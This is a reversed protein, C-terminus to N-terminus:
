FKNVTSWNPNMMNRTTKSIVIFFNHEIQHHPDFVLLITAM